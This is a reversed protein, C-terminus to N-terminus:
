YGVAANTRRPDAYGIYSGDAEFEIVNIGGFHRGTGAPERLAVDWGAARLGEVVAPDLSQEAEITEPGNWSQGGTFHLRTDGVAEAIPRGLVLRDVLAQLLATPIRSAGPIGIALQPRGDRFVLTPAITSRPRKGTDPANISDASGYAFNSMTNNLVVGTGPAVVGAGFHLSLSQTACVINGHADAVAFHTTAAAAVDTFSDDDLWAVEESRETPANLRVKERLEAISDPAVLKEFNFRAEPVDAIRAQVLPIVQRWTRGLLDINAATRLPGGNFSEDELVKLITLYLAPGTAPPPAAVVTWGRFGIAVPEILRAEYDAFDELTLSGGGQQAADVIAAAVPGRYFGDRGKSAFRELTAALDPNALRTGAKPLEGGPLYLRAIETDGRRLKKEQEAFFSVTKPLVEFGERALTIAPAVTEAWPKTGWQQHALWLGAGLGPVCVAGYGYNSRRYPSAEGEKANVLSVRWAETEFPGSADMAEIVYTKGSAAEYYLLMLKGGLGSGYPEAVNLALSVAIAADIANGGAQLVQVGAAAAEPHGAVVMGHAGRVPEVTVPVQAAGPWVGGALALALFLRLSKM